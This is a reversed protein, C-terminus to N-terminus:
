WLSCIGTQGRCVCFHSVDNSEKRTAGESHNGGGNPIGRHCGGASGTGCGHRPQKHEQQVSGAPASGTCLGLGACRIGVPAGRGQDGFLQACGISYATKCISYGGKGLLYVCQARRHAVQLGAANRTVVNLNNAKLPLNFHTEHTRDLAVNEVRCVAKRGCCGKHQPQTFYRGLLVQM